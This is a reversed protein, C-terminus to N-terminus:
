NHSLCCIQAAHRQSRELLSLRNQQSGHAHWGAEYPCGEDFLVQGAPLLVATAAPSEFVARKEIQHLAQSGTPRSLEKQSGNFLAFPGAGADGRM